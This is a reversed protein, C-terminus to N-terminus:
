RKSKKNYQSLIIKEPFRKLKVFLLENADIPKVLITTMKSKNGGKIDTFLQDGVVAIEGPELDMIQAARKFGKVAPKFARHVATVKVKENFKIVREKSANSLICLRIGSEKMDNIWEVVADDAEKVFNPVLTNDIDLILGKIGNEQLFDLRIDTVKEVIFKPFYREFM